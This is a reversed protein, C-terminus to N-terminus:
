FKTEIKKICSSTSSNCFAVSELTLKNYFNRMNLVQGDKDFTVILEYNDYNRATFFSIIPLYSIFGPHSQSRSYEKVVHGDKDIWQSMSERHTGFFNNTSVTQNDFFKKTDASFITNQKQSCSAIILLITFLKIKM